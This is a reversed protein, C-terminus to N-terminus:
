TSCGTRPTPYSVARRYAPSGGASRRSTATATTHPSRETPTSSTCGTTKRTTLSRKRRLRRHYIRGGLTQQNGNRDFALVSYVGGPNVIFYLFGTYPDYVSSLARMAGPFRPSLAHWTGIADYANVRSRNCDNVYFFSNATDYALSGNNVIPFGSTQPVGAADYVTIRATFSGTNYTLEYLRLGRTIETPTVWFAASVPGAGSTADPTATGKLIVSSNAAHSTPLFANPAAVSPTGVSVQTPDSSTLTVAPAGAGLIINGDADIGFVSVSASGNAPLAYNSGAFSVVAVSAAVGGLTLALVNAQGAIVTFPVSQAASLVHGSAAPQDYTTLSVDYSGASLALNL